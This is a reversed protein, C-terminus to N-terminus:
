KNALLSLIAMRVAVGNEVQEYALSTNDLVASSMEVGRNVPGPHLILVGKKADKLSNENIGFYKPYEAPLAVEDKSRELQIRLMILVDAGSIAEKLNKAIKCKFVSAHRLCAPPGFLTIDAGLGQMAYINSRAVRSHFIDGIISIKAGKIPSLDKFNVGDLHELITFIDLMAQSPHENCGDGANLVHASTNKAIFQATGSNFHRVVFFSNQMSSLNKITDILSEGKATSSISPNLSLVDAGLRKAALEFSMRTRTSNEFFASLVSKGELLNEHKNESKGLKKFHKARELIALIDNKSLNQTSLFDKQMAPRKIKPTIKAM